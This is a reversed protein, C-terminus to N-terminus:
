ELSNTIPNWIQGVLAFKNQWDIVEEQCLNVADKIYQENTKEEVLPLYKDIALKRDKDDTIYFGVLKKGDVNEFNKIEYKM